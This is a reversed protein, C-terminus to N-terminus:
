NSGCDMPKEDCDYICWSGELEDFDYVSNYFMRLNDYNSCYRSTLTALLSGNWQLTTSISPHCGHFDDWIYILNNIISNNIIEEGGWPTYITRSEGAIYQYFFEVEGAVDDNFPVFFTTITIQLDNFMTTWQSFLYYEDENLNSYHIGDYTGGIYIDNIISSTQTTQVCKYAYEGHDQIWTCESTTGYAECGKFEWSKDLTSKLSSGLLIGPHKIMENFADIVDIAKQFSTDIEAYDYLEAQIPIPSIDMFTHGNDSLESFLDTMISDKNVMTSIKHDNNDEKSCSTFYIALAIVFFLQTRKM